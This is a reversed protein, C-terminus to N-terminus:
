RQSDVKYPRREARELLANLPSVQEYVVDTLERIDLHQHDARMVEVHVRRIVAASELLPPTYM